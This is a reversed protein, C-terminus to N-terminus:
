AGLLKMTKRIGSIAQRIRHENEVLAFRIYGDGSPGFGIGPATAVKGMELMAKSFELSGMKRFNEPIKAWVFMSGKPREVEWNLKELGDCLVDRRKKYIYAVNEPYDSVDRLAIISSIQVPQFMGYDMYSKIKSLAWILKSNGLAFGIRIGPMSFGKSMSYFEVAVEKAEKVEFISPAKYGDFTIDAYAFDHLVKINFEKAFGVVKRFFEIEVCKTTPNHPFSLILLKPKPYAAKVSRTLEDFFDTNMLKATRVEGGAIIPAYIHIPYTPDPAIVIDGPVIMSLVLQFMGEKTGMVVVSEEEPDLDVNYKAKYRKCIEERLKPIGKSLSYRYNKENDLAEKMKKIVLKHPPINPNGMGLDVIDEGIRRLANKRENIEAFIYTPLRAIRQFETEFAM